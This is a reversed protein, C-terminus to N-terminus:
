LSIENYEGYKDIKTANFNTGFKTVGFSVLDGENLRIRSSSQKFYIGDPYKYNSIFGYDQKTFCVVGKSDELIRKGVEKYDIVLRQVDFVIESGLFADHSKLNRYIKKWRNNRIARLEHHHKKMVTKFKEEAIDSELLYSLDVMINFLVLYSKRDINGIAEIYKIANMLMEVRYDMDTYPVLEAKRRYLEGLRSGLINKKKNDDTENIHKLKNLINEAESYRGLMMLVRSKELLIEESEPFCDEAEQITALANDFDSLKVLFFVSKLYLVTAKEFNTNCKMLAINYNEIANFYETKCAYIFAKIKYVEFYDNAVNAAKEVLRFAQDWLKENSMELAQTLYHVALKKDVESSYAVMSKPNFPDDANKVKVSQLVVNLKKRKEFVSKVYDNDPAHNVSLYDRAIKILEYRGNTYSIMNTASLENIAERLRVEDIELYYDIEGYSLNTNEILFLHLVRKSCDRLKCYVNSMCFSVLESRNNLVQHESLGNYIATMYWKISLPSSYLYSKIIDKIDEEDKKHLNLGYYKSLERYYCAADNLTMGELLYRYELEGIGHRSTILVKSNYPVKKLFSLARSNSMTELNDLVLISRFEKLYTLLLEEPDSTEDFLIDRRFKEYVGSFTKISNEIEIFDGNSLTKTKLSVWVVTEYCNEPDDLLEYLTKVILATKGVGGNGIVTIIQNKRNKILKKLAKIDKKRGIYGTDDFEPVPLNHIVDDDNLNYEIPIKLLSSPDKEITNKLILTETWQINSLEHDVKNLAEFLIARDGLEFPKTHAVRNRIPIIKSFFRMLNEASVSNMRFEYPNNKILEVLDSLTLEFLVADKDDVNLSKNHERARDLMSKTFIVNEVSESIFKRLDFELSTCISFMVVRNNLFLQKM